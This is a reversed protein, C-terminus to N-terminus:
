KSPMYVLSLGFMIELIITLITLLYYSIQNYLVFDRAHSLYGLLKQFGENAPHKCFIHNPGLNALLWFQCFVHTHLRFIMINLNKGYFTCFWYKKKAFLIPSITHKWRYIAIFVHIASLLADMLYLTSAGLELVKDHFTHEIVWKSVCDGICKSPIGYMSLLPVLHLNTISVVVKSTKTSVERWYSWYSYFM